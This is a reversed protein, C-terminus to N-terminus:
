RKSAQGDVRMEEEKKKTKKNEIEEGLLTFMVESEKSDPLL